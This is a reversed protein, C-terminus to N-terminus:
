RSPHGVVSLYIANEKVGDIDLLENVEDDFFAGVQCSGLERYVAALALNEAIHGADLYIYRYARQRYKWKSRAVVATWVFVVACSRCMSQGLAAMAIQEGFDGIKLEELLHHKIDYHYVGGPIKEVRNAILYTEIPYLAGASPATRFEYGNEVRQIGTSAWLLYSLDSFSLPTAAFYRVSQRKKLIDHLCMGEYEVHPLTIKRSDVYEKYTEPRSTWDLGGGAMTHRHYKTNQHFKDGIDQKM